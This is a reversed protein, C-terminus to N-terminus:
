TSNQYVTDTRAMIFLSSAESYLIEGDISELRAKFFLKRREIKTLYVRMVVHTKEELPTRYNVNLNATFGMRMAGYEKHMVSYYAFGFVDDFLLAAIGGHVIGKHGNVRTGLFIDAVVVEQENQDDSTSESSRKNYSPTEYVDYTEVFEPARLGSHIAHTKAMDDPFSMLKYGKEILPFENHTNQFAM